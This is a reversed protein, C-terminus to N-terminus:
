SLEELWELTRRLGGFPYVHLGVPSDRMADSSAHWRTLADVYMSPWGDEGQSLGSAHEQNSGQATRSEPPPAAVGCRVAMRDRVERRTPGVIGLSIPANAASVFGAGRLDDVFAATTGADFCFQTVVRAAVNASEAWQLKRILAARADSASLDGVGEPHGCLSVADFGCRQLVGSELLALSEPFVSTPRMSPLPPPPSAPATADHNAHADGRVILAERLVGDRAAARQWSALRRELEDVSAVRQAPIHPVPVLEANERRLLAIGQAIADPPDGPLSPLYVRTGAPLLPLLRATASGAKILSTPALEISWARALATATAM